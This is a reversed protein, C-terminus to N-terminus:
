TLFYDGMHDVTSFEFSMQPSRLSVVVVVHHLFTGRVREHHKLTNPESYYQSCEPILYWQQEPQWVTSHCLQFTSCSVEGMGAAHQSQLHAQSGNIYVRSAERPLEASGQGRRREVELSRASHLRFIRPQSFCVDGWWWSRAIPGQESGGLHRDARM